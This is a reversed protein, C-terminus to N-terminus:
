LFVCSLFHSLGHSRLHVVFTKSWIKTWFHEFYSRFISFNLFNLFYERANIGALLFCFVYFYSLMWAKKTCSPPKPGFKLGFIGWIIHGWFLFKWFLFFCVWANVWAIVFCLFSLFWAMWAKQPAILPKPGFKLGFIGWIHGLFFEFFSLFM